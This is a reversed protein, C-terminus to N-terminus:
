LLISAHTGKQKKSVFFCFFLMTGVLSLVVIGAVVGWGGGFFFVWGLKIWGWLWFICRTLRVM